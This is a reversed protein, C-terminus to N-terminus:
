GGRGNFDMPSRGVFNAAGRGGDRDGRSEDGRGGDGRGNDSDDVGGHGLRWGGGRREGM